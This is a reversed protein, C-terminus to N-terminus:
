AALHISRFVWQRRLCPPRQRQRADEPVAQRIQAVPHEIGEVVENDRQPELRVRLVRDHQPQHAPRVRKLADENLGDDARDAVTQAPRAPPPPGEHADKNQDGGQEQQKRRGGRMQRRGQPQRADDAADEQERQGEIDRHVRILRQQRVDRRRLLAPFHRTEPEEDPREPLDVIRASIATRCRGSVKPKVM